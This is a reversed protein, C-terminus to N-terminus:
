YIAVVVIVARDIASIFSCYSNSRAASSDSRIFAYSCNSPVACYNCSFFTKCCRSPIANDATVVVIVIFTPFSGCNDSAQNCDACHKRFRGCCRNRNYCAACGIHIRIAGIVRLHILASRNNVLYNRRRGSGDNGSQGGSAGRNNGSTNSVTLASSCVVLTNA